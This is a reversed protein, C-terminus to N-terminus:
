QVSLLLMQNEQFIPCFNRIGSDKGFEERYKQIVMNNNVWVTLYGININVYGILRRHSHILIKLDIMRSRQAINQPNKHGFEFWTKEVKRFILAHSVVLISLEQLFDM